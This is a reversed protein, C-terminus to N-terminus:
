TSASADANVQQNILEVLVAAAEQGEAAQKESVDRAEGVDGQLLIPQTDFPADFIWGRKFGILYASYPFTSPSRDLLTDLALATLASAFQSVEADYAELPSSSETVDYGSAVAFPAKPLTEFYNVLGARMVLPEADKDPRSRVLLGGIGGAFVEGWIIAKKRRKAVAALQVFVSPSATADIILDCTALSDLVTSASEASEQGAIRTRRVQVDIGAAVAGLAEKVADAKNAGVSTWDLEHRCVNGGLMVDDDVLLFKRVGCRALSVAVKSGVSGLGVIGLRKESLTAHEAPLRQEEPREADILTCETVTTEGSVDVSIARGVKDGTVLVFLLDTDGLGGSASPLEFNQFGAGRIAALLEEVSSLRGCSLFAESKFLWGAKRWAFLPGIQLIGSPLDPVKFADAGPQGVEAVFTVVAPRHFICRGALSRQEQDGIDRLFQRLGPTVVVRENSARVEQGLTLAHRSPIAERAAVQGREASLLKHASLLLEAGTIDASWNDPGWELCLVGGPGYQHSSWRETTSCRPRVYAPTDPFFNPYVLEVDYTEGGMAIDADVKLLAGKAFGWRVNQLWDSRGALESIAKREELFRAANEIAWLM